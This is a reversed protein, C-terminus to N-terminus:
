MGDPITTDTQSTYNDYARIFINYQVAQAKLSKYFVTITAQDTLSVLCYKLFNTHHVQSPQVASATITTSPASTPHHLVITTRVPVADFPTFSATSTTAISAAMAQMTPQTTTQPAAPDMARMRADLHVVCLKVNYPDIAEWDIISFACADLAKSWMNLCAVQQWLKWQDAEARYLVGARVMNDTERAMMDRFTCIRHKKLDKITNPECELITGFVHQVVDPPAPSPTTPAM